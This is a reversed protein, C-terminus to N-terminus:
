GSPVLVGSAIQSWRDDWGGDIRVVSQFADGKRDVVHICLRGKDDWRASVGVFGAGATGLDVYGQGADPGILGGAGGDSAKAWLHGDPKIALVDVRNPFQPCTLQVLTGM